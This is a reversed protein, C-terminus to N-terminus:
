ILGAFDSLAPRGSALPFSALLRFGAYYPNGPLWLGPHCCNPSLIGCQRFHPSVSKKCILAITGRPSAGIQFRVDNRTKEIIDMLYGMVPKSIEIQDIMGRLKLTEEASVAPQTKEIIDETDSRLAVIIEEERQMYGLKLRM